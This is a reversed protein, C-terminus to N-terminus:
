WASSGSASTTGSGSPGRGRRDALAVALLRGSVLHNMTIQKWIFRQTQHDGPRALGATIGPGSVLRVWPRGAAIEWSSALSGRGCCFSGLAQGRRNGLVFGLEGTWLLVFGNQAGPLKGLVFGLPERRSEAPERSQELPHRSGILKTHVVRDLGPKKINRSPSGKRM